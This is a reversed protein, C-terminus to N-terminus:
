LLRHISKAAHIHFRSTSLLRHISKSAHAHFWPTFGTTLLYIPLSHMCQVLPLELLVSGLFSFQFAFLVVVVIVVFAFLFLFLFLAVSM